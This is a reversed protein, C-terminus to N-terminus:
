VYEFKDVIYKKFGEIGEYRKSKYPYDKFEQLGNNQNKTKQRFRHRFLLKKTVSDRLLAVSVNPIIRAYRITKKTM